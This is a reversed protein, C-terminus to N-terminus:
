ERPQLVQERKTEPDVLVVEFLDGFRCDFYKVMQEQLKPGAQRAGGEIASNTGECPAGM